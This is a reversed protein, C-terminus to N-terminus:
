GRNRPLAKPPIREMFNEFATTVEIPDNLEQQLEILRGLLSKLLDAYQEKKEALDTMEYPDEALDFLRVRNAAPYIIMKYRETRIMRQVSFYCGYIADYSGQTTDGKALPMLSNFEVHEPKELGALELSTAMVDQLYVPATVQKGAPLGPGTMLLPVSISHEYMNQKGILGHQGVALGHDSTFFIYTNEMLGSAELADLIRGIQADMHSVIAYYEQLNKRVAYETRPFPALKEDRLGRGTGAYEAYPYEPLFNVPAAINEIPYMDVYEKPAQRPDHPANFALYIFFPDENSSAQEIFDIGDDALVESWHKGGQWFGGFAPDFPSWVDEEGEIFIRAYRQDSQAPMGGRVHRTHDFIQNPNIDVHWKGSFYTEYGAAKMYQSWYGKPKAPQITYTEGVRPMNAEGPAFRSKPTFRAANWVSAGTNLMARSAVCVAPAFSGMNYAQNFQVGSEALRDLNPTKVIGNGYSGMAQTTQDDSFIFLINPPRGVSSADTIEAASEAGTGAAVLALLAFFECLSKPLRVHM